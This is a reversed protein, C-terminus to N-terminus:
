DKKYLKYYKSGPFRLWYEKDSDRTEAVQRCSRYGPLQDDYFLCFSGPDKHTASPERVIIDLNELIETEGCCGIAMSSYIDIEDMEKPLSNLLDRLEKVKM